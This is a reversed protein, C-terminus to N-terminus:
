NLDTLVYEGSEIKKRIEATNEGLFMNRYKRTTRSYNWYNKDLYIKKTDIKCIVSSYSQFYTEIKGGVKIIKIIFQNPVKRGNTSPMNSVKVQVQEM